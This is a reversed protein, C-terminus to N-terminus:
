DAVIDLLPCRPLPILYIYQERETVPENSEFHLTEAAQDRLDAGSHQHDRTKQGSRSGLSLLMVAGALGGVLMGAVFPIANNSNQQPEQSQNEM